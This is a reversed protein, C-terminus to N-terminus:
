LLLCLSLAHVPSLPLHLQNAQEVQGSHSVVVVVVVVVVGEGVGFGVGLGVGAGVGDGVGEGV